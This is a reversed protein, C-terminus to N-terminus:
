QKQATGLVIIDTIMSKLAILYNLEDQFKSTIWDDLYEVKEKIYKTVAYIEFINRSSLALIYISKNCQIIRKLEITVQNILNGICLHLNDDGSNIQYKLILEKISNKCKLDLEKKTM